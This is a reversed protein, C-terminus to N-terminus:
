TLNHIKTLNISIESVITKTAKTLGGDANHDVAFAARDNKREIKVMNHIESTMLDRAEM